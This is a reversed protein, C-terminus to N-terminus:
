KKYFQLVEDASGWPKLVTTPKLGIKKRRGLGAYSLETPHSFAVSPKETPYFEWNRVTVKLQREYKGPEGFLHKPYNKEDYKAFREEMAEIFLERECILGNLNRRGKYSFMPPKTWTYINWINDDYAFTRESPSCDFHEASYLVDDECLAIYKTKAAKAGILAQKYTNFQSRGIDGVCINEGFEIPKQSVSILPMNGISKLLQIRVNNAFFYSVHNATYYIITKDKDM